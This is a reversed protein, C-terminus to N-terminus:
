PASAVANTLRVVAASAESGNGYFGVFNLDVLLGQPGPIEPASLEYYLEQLEIEFISSASSTATIKLASETLNLAKTLLSADEFLTKINGSVRAIGEPISGLEGSAGIVYNSGDLGFDIAVSVERCNSLTSGGETIAAQFNSVRGLTVATVSADFPTTGETYKAGMVGINAVLEGDGGFNVGFSSIKCGNFLGYRDTAFDPFQTELTISSMTDGIKYEHVYPSAGTTGPAGFMAKCWYMMAVSDVPVVISGGVSKNGSFPEVPNRNGTITAASNLARVPKLSCSNFPMNYGDTPSTKFTTELGWILKSTSGRQQTM